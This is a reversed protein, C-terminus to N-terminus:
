LRNKIKCEDRAMFYIRYKNESIWIEVFSGESLFIRLSKSVNLPGKIIIADEVITPFKTIALEKLRNYINEM